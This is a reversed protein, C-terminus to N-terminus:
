DDHEGGDDHAEGSASADDNHNNKNKDTHSAPAQVVINNVVPAIQVSLIQGDLGVYVVDNNTFTIKYSNTGNLDSSEASLLDTNGVVQAALQAAQVATLVPQVRTPAPADETPASTPATTATDVSLASVEPVNSINRYASVVGYLTVLAFTTLVSSIFITTKRMSDGEQNGLIDNM